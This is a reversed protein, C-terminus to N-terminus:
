RADQGAASRAATAAAAPQLLTADSSGGAGPALSAALARPVLLSPLRLGPPRLPPSSRRLGLPSQCTTHSASLSTLQDAAVAPGLSPATSISSPRYPGIDVAVLPGRLRPEANQRTCDYERFFGAGRCGRRRREARRSLSRRGGPTPIHHGTL